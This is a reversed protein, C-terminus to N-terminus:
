RRRRHLAGIGGIGFIVMAGPAPVYQVAFDDITWDENVPGSASWSLAVYTAPTDLDKVGYVFPSDSPSGNGFSTIYAGNADFVEYAPNGVGDGGTLYNWTAVFAVIPTDFKLLISRYAPAAGIGVLNLAHDGFGEDWVQGGLPLFLNALDNQNDYSISAGPVIPTEGVIPGVALGDFDLMLDQDLDYSFIFVSGSASGVLLGAAGLATACAISKM